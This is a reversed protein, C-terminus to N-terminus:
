QLTHVSARVIATSEVTHSAVQMTVLTHAQIFGSLAQMWKVQVVQLLLLCLMSIKCLDTNIDM